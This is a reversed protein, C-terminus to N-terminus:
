STKWTLDLRLIEVGGASDEVLDGTCQFVFFEIDAIPEGIKGRKKGVGIHRRADELVRPRLSPRLKM